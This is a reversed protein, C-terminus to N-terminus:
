WCHPTGCCRATRCMLGSRSAPRRRSRTTSSGTASRSSSGLRSSRCVRRIRALVDEHHMYTSSLSVVVLPDPNDAPWPLDAPWGAVTAEEFIPGVFRVNPSARYGPIEFEPPMVVLVRECRRWQEVVARPENTRAMPAMGFHARTANVRDWDWGDGAYRADTFFGYRMHVIVATPLGILDAAVLGNRLMGDVILVDPSDREAADLMADALPVGALLEEFYGGQGDDDLARGNAIDQDCSAPLSGFVCGAAETRAQLSANALVSVQHGRTRLRRGLGLAPPVNGGAEVTVILFRGHDIDSPEDM